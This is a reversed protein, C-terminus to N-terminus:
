VTCTEAICPTTEHLILMDCGERRALM